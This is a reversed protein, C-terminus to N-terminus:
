SLLTQMEIKAVVKCDINIYTWTTSTQNHSLRCPTASAKWTELRTVLGCQLRSLRTHQQRELTDYPTMDRNCPKGWGGAAGRGRGRVGGPRKATVHRSRREPAIREDSHPHTRPRPRPHARTHQRPTTHLAPTYQHPTTTDDTAHTYLLRRASPRGHSAQPAHQATDRGAGLGCPAGRGGVQGVRTPAPPQSARAAVLARTLQTDQTLTSGRQEWERCRPRSSLRRNLWCPQSDDASLAQGTEKGRWEPDAKPHPLIWASENGHTNVTM